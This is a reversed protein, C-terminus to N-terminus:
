QLFLLLKLLRFLYYFLYINFRGTLFLGFYTATKGEGEEKNRKAEIAAFAAAAYLWLRLGTTRHM